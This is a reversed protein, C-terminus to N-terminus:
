YVITRVILAAGLLLILGTIAGIILEKARGTKTSDGGSAAYMIGGILIVIGALVTGLPLIFSTYWQRVIFYLADTDSEPSALAISPLLMLFGAILYQIRKNM